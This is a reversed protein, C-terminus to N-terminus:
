RRKWSTVYYSSSYDIERYDFPSIDIEDMTSINIIKLYRPIPTFAQERKHEEIFIIRDSEPSWVQVWDAYIADKLKQLNEGNSNMIHLEASYSLAIKNGDPSLRASNVTTDPSTLVELINGSMDIVALTSHLHTLGVLLKDSDPYWGYVARATDSLLVENEMELNVTFIAIRGLAEPPLHRSFAIKEGDPSWIIGTDGSMRFGTPPNTIQRKGSGDADMIYIAKTFDHPPNINPAFSTFAIKTGDPSWKAEFIPFDNDITLQKVESGDEKMSWLQGNYVFLIPGPDFTTHNPEVSSNCSVIMISIVIVIILQLLNISQEKPM